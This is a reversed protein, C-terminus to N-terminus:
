HNFIYLCIMILTEFLIVNEFQEKRKEGVIEMCSSRALSEDREKKECTVIKKVRERILIKKMLGHARGGM